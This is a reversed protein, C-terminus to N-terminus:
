QAEGVCLTEVGRGHEDGTPVLDESNRTTEPRPTGDPDPATALVPGSPPERRGTTVSRKRRDDDRSGQGVIPVRGKRGPSEGQRWALPPHHVALTLRIVIAHVVRRWM